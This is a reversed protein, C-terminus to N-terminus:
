KWLVARVPSGDAGALKLPLCILTYDGPPVHGLRLNELIV